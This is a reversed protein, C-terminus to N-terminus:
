ANRSRNGRLIQRLPLNLARMLSFLTNLGINVHGAEIQSIRAQPVGSARTLDRQSWQRQHRARRLVRGLLRRETNM